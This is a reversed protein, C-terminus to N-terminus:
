CQGRGCNIKRSLIQVRTATAYIVEMANLSANFLTVLARGRDTSMVQQLAPIEGLNLPRGVGIGVGYGVCFGIFVQGAKLTFPNEVQFGLNRREKISSDIRTSTTNTITKTITSDM